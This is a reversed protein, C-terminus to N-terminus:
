QCTPFRASAHERTIVDRLVGVTWKKAMDHVGSKSGSESTFELTIIPVLFQLIKSSRSLPFTHLNVM